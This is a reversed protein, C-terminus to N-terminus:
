PQIGLRNATRLLHIVIQNKLSELDANLEIQTREGAAHAAVALDDVQDLAHLLSQHLSLSKEFQEKASM